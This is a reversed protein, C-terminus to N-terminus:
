RPVILRYRFTRGGWWPIPAELEDLGVEALLAHYGRPSLTCTVTQQTVHLTGGATLLQRWPPGRPPLGHGPVKRALQLYLNEAVAVLTAHLSASLPVGALGSDLQPEGGGQQDAADLREAYRAAVQAAPTDPDNTILLTPPQDGVVAAIQRVKAAIGRLTIMEEHLWPGSGRGASEAAARTWAGSPLSALRALEARGRQRASLWRIGRGTLENLVPYTTLSSDFVLTGPDAGTAQKWFDAFRIIERTREDARLNGRAYVVESGARDRVWFTLSAGSGFDCSLGADGTAMGAQRLARVLGILLSRHCESRVQRSYSGLDALSPMATLGLAFALGADGALSRVLHPGDLRGCIALLLAAIAPWAGIASMTPYGALRVLDDLALAAMAPLLLLLGAHDCPIALPAEPWSRLRVTEAAPEAGASRRAAEGRPLRPIGEAALIQWVTQASLALGRAALEASIETITHGAQRLALVETRWERTAKGPGEPGPRNHAFLTMKGSRLLAAMQHVSAASYGFRAAAEAASLEDVFYARLAEYRRQSGGAPSLFYEGGQRLAAM